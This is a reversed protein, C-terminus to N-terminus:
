LLKLYDLLAEREEADLSRVEHEHGRNSFGPKRTDIEVSGSFGRYGSADDWLGSVDPELALGVRAFDLRHGGVMFREPRTAPELLHRLTPVSGNVFYPASAWVGSLLPAALKGTAAAAIDSRYVTGNV